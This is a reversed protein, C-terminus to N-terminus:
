KGFFSFHQPGSPDANLLNRGQRPVLRGISRDYIEGYNGVAQIVQRLMSRFSPGFVKAEEMDGHMSQVIFREEAIITASVVWFVFDSWQPDDERTVLALNGSPLAYRYLVLSPPIRLSLCPCM